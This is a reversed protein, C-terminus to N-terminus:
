SHKNLLSKAEDQEKQLAPSTYKAMLDQKKKELVLAEIAQHDPLPVYAVYQPGDHEQGAAGAGGGLKTSAMASRREDEKEQWDQLM